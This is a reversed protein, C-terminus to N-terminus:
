NSRGFTDEARPGYQNDAKSDSVMLVFFWIWGIIPVFKILIWGWGMGVDHLRRVALSVALITVAMGIGGTANLSVGLFSLLLQLIIQAATLSLVVYWYESRTARGEFTLLNGLWRELAEKLSVHKPIM